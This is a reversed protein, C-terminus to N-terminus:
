FQERKPVNFLLVKKFEKGMYPQNSSFDTLSVLLTLNLQPKKRKVEDETLEVIHIENRTSVEINVQITNIVILKIQVENPNFYINWRGFIQESYKHCSTTLTTIAIDTKNWVDQYENHTSHSKFLAMRPPSAPAGGNSHVTTKFIVANDMYMDGMIERQKNANANVNQQRINNSEVDYSLHGYTPDWGFDDGVLNTTAFAEGTTQLQITTGLEKGWVMTIQFVNERTAHTLCRYQYLNRAYNSRMVVIQYKNALLNKFPTDVFYEMNYENNYNPHRLAKLDDWTWGNEGWKSFIFIFYCNDQLNVMCSEIFLRRDFYNSRDPKCVYVRPMKILTGSFNQHATSGKFNINPMTFQLIETNKILKLCRDQRFTSTQDDMSFPLLLPKVSPEFYRYKIQHDTDRLYLMYSSQSLKHFHSYPYNQTSVARKFYIVHDDTIKLIDDSETGFDYDLNVTFGKWTFQKAKFDFIPTFAGRIYIYRSAEDYSVYNRNSDILFDDLLINVNVLQTMREVNIIVLAWPNNKIMTVLSNILAVHSNHNITPLLNILFLNPLGSPTDTLKYDGAQHWTEVETSTYRNLYIEPANAKITNMRVVDIWHHLDQYVLKPIRYIGVYNDIFQLYMIKKNIKQKIDNECIYIQNPKIDRGAELIANGNTISSFVYTKEGDSFAYINTRENKHIIFEKIQKIITSNFYIKLSELNVGIIMCCHPLIFKKGQVVGDVILLILAIFHNLSIRGYWIQAFGISEPIQPTLGSALKIDYPSRPPILISIGPLSTLSREVITTSISNLGCTITKHDTYKWGFDFDSNDTSFTELQELTSINLLRDNMRIWYGVKDDLKVAWEQNHIVNMIMLIHGEPFDTTNFICKINSPVENIKLQVSNPSIVGERIFIVVCLPFKTQQLNKIVANFYLLIQDKQTSELTFYTFVPVGMGIGEKRHIEAGEWQITEKTPDLVSFSVCSSTRGKLAANNDAAFLQYQLQHYYKCPGAQMMNMNHVNAPAQPKKNSWFICISKRTDEFQIGRRKMIIFGFNKGPVNLLLHDKKHQANIENGSPYVCFVSRSHDDYSQQFYNMNIGFILKLHNQLRANPFSPMPIDTTCLFIITHTKHDSTFRNLERYIDERSTIDQFVVADALSFGSQLVLKIKETEEAAEGTYLLTSCDDSHMSEVFVPKKQWYFMSHTPLFDVLTKSGTKALRIYALNEVRESKEYNELEGLEFTITSKKNNFKVFVRSGEHNYEVHKPIFIKWDNGIYIIEQLNPLIKKLRGKQTEEFNENKTQIYLVCNIPLALLEQFIIVASNNSSSRYAFIYDPLPSTTKYTNLFTLNKNRLKGNIMQEVTFNRNANSVNQWCETTFPVDIGVGKKQNSVFNTVYVNIDKTNFSIKGNTLEWTNKANTSNLGLREKNWILCKEKADYKGANTIYLHKDHTFSLFDPLINRCFQRLDSPDYKLDVEYLLYLPCKGFYYELSEIDALLSKSISKPVNTELKSFQYNNLKENPPNPRQFTAVHHFYMYTQVKDLKKYIKLLKPSQSNLLGVDTYFNSVKDPLYPKQANITFLLLDGVPAAAAPKLPNKAAESKNKDNTETKPPEEEDKSKKPTESFAIRFSPQNPVHRSVYLNVGTSDAFKVCDSILYGTPGVTVVEIDRTVHQAALEKVTKGGAKIAYDIIFTISNPLERMHNISKLFEILLMEDDGINLEIIFQIGVTSREKPKFDEWSAMSFELYDKVLNNDDEFGGEGKKSRSQFSKM